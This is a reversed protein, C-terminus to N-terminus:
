EDGKMGDGRDSTEEGEERRYSECGGKRMEM